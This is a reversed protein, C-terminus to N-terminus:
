SVLLPSLDADRGPREKVRSFGAVWQVPLQTPWLAPRSLHPFDRRWRSEIEPGDLGYGTVIGVASGSGCNKLMFYRYKRNQKM